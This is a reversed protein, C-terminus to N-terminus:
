LGKEFFVLRYGLDIEDYRRFGSREYWGLNRPVSTELFIPLELAKCRIVIENLLRTGVGQHQYMPNVGIFWLYAQTGKPRRVNILRERRLVKAIGLIGVAGFILRLTQWISARTSRELHPFLLLACANRDDSLWVEGFQMCTEFSYDMLVALRGPRNHEGAVIYNVSPNDYFSSALLERVLKKDSKKAKIM